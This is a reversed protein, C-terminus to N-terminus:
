GQHKAAEVHSHKPLRGAVTEMNHYVYHLTWMGVTCLLCM